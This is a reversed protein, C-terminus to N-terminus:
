KTISYNIINRHIKTSPEITLTQCIKIYFNGKYKQFVMVIEQHIPFKLQNSFDHINYMM